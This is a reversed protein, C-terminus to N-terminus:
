GAERRAGDGSWREIKEHLARPSIPKPLYDDMGAEICRERDGKLAHATVGVIPVHGGSRAEADRIAATAQLGNMEPMSVDMLIMGPRREQWAEVALRGNAVIEFSLGTEALIQTFVLQNVENDEAVLIDIRGPDARMSAERAISPLPQRAEPSPRARDTESGDREATGRHEATEVGGVARRKQITAVLTELLISSRVPKILHADIGIERYGANSASHDVSTLMVIPTAAIAPNARIARAVEAGSMGPMQYDLIVCDVDLGHAAAASLVDLGEIGNKAACADFRWSAMQESLIARNVQNDDVILIRAGTVDLPAARVRSPEEAVPLEVSFWFTSGAGHVSEVGIDGGMMAVLRATIALGLGTGEHRRTSSADVQSFKEFVLELKDSPIGIGTDAVNIRLAPGGVDPDGTVEVLVHGAETFKIANGVLNTIIQRIRGVDGVFHSPLGPEIRVILEIDKEKARTSLLTAVDEIAEVLNFPAPDLIMQGADIKSFDLIDNIITLLANGSKVIIDTFTRQKPDLDSKALLEAMGLVGNMPTRIEHSMNALFESKARDALVARQQAERLEQERQKLETIDTTSGILYLSGDSAIMSDKRAIQYRTGGDASSFTEEIVQRQRTALVARDGDMFTEGDVGFIEADTRGLAQEATYGTLDCWGKNVYHLRLDPRKAYIAVPVNDVLNRFIENDRTSIQLAAEREKLASIDVRVGVFSGDETWTDFVQYWRGDPHQREYPAHRSRHREMYRGVWAEPDTDYLADISPDGSNRFYGVDHGYAIVDRFSKGRTWVADLEPMSDRLKQNALVFRDDRDYIIVGTPLSDVVSALHRRADLAETERRKLETIDFIFCAVYNRGGDTTVRSKRVVRSQGIGQFEFNEEVEYTEGTGLVARESEEFQAAEEATVFDGGVCGLMDAPAKGFISAFAQNVFVFRLNEDKVFIPDKVDNIVAEALRSKELAEALREEREKIDSIDYYCVLRKGGSLAKVSYIMTRGDIRRFERPEVDGRRVEEARAAVYAPWEDDPIDYMGRRRNIAMGAGFPSGVPLEDPTLNWMRYFASNISEARLDADLLIVGMMMSDLTAQLDEVLARAQENARAIESQRNKLETVDTRIAVRDGWPTVTERRLVWRGHAAERVVEKGLNESRKALYERIWEEERGIAQPMRGAAVLDRLIAEFSRGPKFGDFGEFDSLFAANCDVLRDEADWLVIGFTMADMAALLRESANADLGTRALRSDAGAERGTIDTFVAVTEDGPCNIERYLVARGDAFRLTSRGRGPKRHSGLAAARWAGAGMPETKWVGRELGTDVIEAFSRGPRMVDELGRHIALAAANCAIIRDDPGYHCVGDGAADFAAAFQAAALVGTAEAGEALTFGRQVWDEETRRFEAPLWGM